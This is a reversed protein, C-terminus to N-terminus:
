LALADAEVKKWTNNDKVELANNYYRMKHAGDASTVEASLVANVGSSLQQTGISGDAITPLPVNITGVLVEGQYIQYSALYEATEVEVISVIETSGGGTNQPQRVWVDSSNLRWISGNSIVEAWSGFSAPKEATHTNPLNDIDSVTDCVYVEENTEYQGTRKRLVYAM